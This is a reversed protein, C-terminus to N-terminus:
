QTWRYVESSEQTFGVYSLFGRATPEMQNPFAFIPASYLAMLKRFERIGLVIAKRHQKLPERMTMFAQLPNTHMIGAVGIVEGDLEATVGRFSAIPLGGWVAPADDKKSMRIIPESPNMM